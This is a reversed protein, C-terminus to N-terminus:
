ACRGPRLRGSSPYVGRATYPAVGSGIPSTVDYGIPGVIRGIKARKIKGRRGRHRKVGRM